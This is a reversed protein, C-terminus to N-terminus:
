KVLVKKGNIIYIGKETELVRRGSLDYIMDEGNEANVDYITTTGDENEEGVLRIGISRKAAEEIVVPSGNKQKIELHLRFPNLNYQPDMPTWNGNEDIILRNGLEEATMTNYTGNIEFSTYASSCSISIQADKNSSYLKVNELELNMETVSNNDVRRFMYPHNAVLKGSTLKIAEMTMRDISGNKDDDYSHVDNFYAVELGMATLESVPIEFPVYLPNWLLDNWLERKYTLKGVSLENANVFEEGDVITVEARKGTYEVTYTGNENAVAQYGVVCRADDIKDFFTGASVTITGEGYLSGSHVNRFEGGKIEVNAGAEACVNFGNYNDKGDFTGNNITTTSGDWVVLAHATVGELGNCTFSGGNITMTGNNSVTSHVSTAKGGNVTTTGYNEIAFTYDCINNLEGGNMTFTAGEDVRVTTADYGGNNVQHDDEL